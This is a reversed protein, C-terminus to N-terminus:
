SVIGLRQAPTAAEVRSSVELKTLIRSVHVSAVRVEVPERLDEGELADSEGTPLRLSGSRRPSAPAPAQNVLYILSTRLSLTRAGALVSAKV